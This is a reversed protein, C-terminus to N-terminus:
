KKAGAVVVLTVKTFDAVPTFEIPAALAGAAGTSPYLTGVSWQQSGPMVGKVTITPATVGAFPLPASAPAGPGVVGYGVAGAVAQWSLTVEDPATQVATLGSPNNKAVGTSRSSASLGPAAVPTGAVPTGPASARAGGAAGAGAAGAGAAGTVNGSAAAGIGAPPATCAPPEAAGKAAALTFSATTQFSVGPVQARPALSRAPYSAVVTATAGAVGSQCGCVVYHTPDIYEGAAGAGSVSLDFDGLTVRFGQPNRPVDRTAPDFVTLQVAGCLGVPLPNLTPTLTVTWPAQAFTADPVLVAAALVLGSIAHRVLAEQIPSFRVARLMGCLFFTAAPRGSGFARIEQELDLAQNPILGDQAM